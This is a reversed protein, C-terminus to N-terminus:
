CARGLHMARGARFGAHPAEPRTQRRAPFVPRRAGHRLLRARRGADPRQRLRFHLDHHRRGDGARRGTGSMQPALQRRWAIRRRTRFRRCAAPREPLRFQLRYLSGFRHAVGLALSLPLNRRPNRVEGATFTVNNWADSSFLAGVMAVGVLRVPTSVGVPTAGSIPRLQPGRSGSQPRGSFGFGVLGLLAATKAVTFVNQVIAGTRIGRRTSWTLLVIMLSRWCSSPPSGVKGSGLLYNQASIWPFFVGTYKAFAVAVAAITGTQIM